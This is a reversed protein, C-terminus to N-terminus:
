ADERLKKCLAELETIKRSSEEEHEEPLKVKVDEVMCDLRTERAIEMLLEDCSEVMGELTTKEEKL